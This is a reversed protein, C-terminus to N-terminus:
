RFFHKDVRKGHQLEPVTSRATLPVATTGGEEGSKETGGVTEGERGREIMGRELGGEGRGAPLGGMRAKKYGVQYRTPVTIGLVITRDQLPLSFFM